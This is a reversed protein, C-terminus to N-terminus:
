KFCWWWLWWRVVCIYINVDGRPACYSAISSHAPWSPNALISHRSVDDTSRSEGMRQGGGLIRSAFTVYLFHSATLLLPVQYCYAAMEWKAFLYVRSREIYSFHVPFKNQQCVLNSSSQHCRYIYTYIYQRACMMPPLLLLSLGLREPELRIERASVIRVCPTICGPM